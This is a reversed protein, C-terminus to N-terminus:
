IMGKEKLKYYENLIDWLDKGITWCLANIRTTCQESLSFNGNEEFFEKDKMQEFIEKKIQKITRKM